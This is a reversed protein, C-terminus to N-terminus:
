LKYLHGQDSSERQEKGWTGRKEGRREERNEGERDKKEARRAKM